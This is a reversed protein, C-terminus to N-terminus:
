HRKRNKGGSGGRRTGPPPPNYIIKYGLIKKLILFSGKARRLDSSIIITDKPNLGRKKIKLVTKRMELKGKQSLVGGKRGLIIGKKGEKTEGHRILYLTKM